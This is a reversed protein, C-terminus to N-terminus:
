EFSVTFLDVFDGVSVDQLYCRVVNGHGSGFCDNRAAYNSELVFPRNELLKDPICPM